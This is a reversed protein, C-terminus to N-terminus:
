EAQPAEDGAPPKHHAAGNGCVRQRREELWATWRANQPEDLVASVQQKMQEFEERIAPRIVDDRIQNLNGLHRRLIQEVQAYQDDTLDLESRLAPLMKECVANWHRSSAEEVRRNVIIMTSGSGIVAGSIFVTAMMALTLWRRPPLGGLTSQPWTPTSPTSELNTAESTSM